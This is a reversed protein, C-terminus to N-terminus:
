FYEKFYSSDSIVHEFRPNKITIIEDVFGEVNEKRSTPLIIIAGERKLKKFFRFVSSNYMCDYFTLTDLWPFCYVQKNNAYGIALSVRWREWNCNKSIGYDLIDTNLHFEKIIEDINEYKHCKKIANELSKRISIEKKIFGNSTIKKGYVM